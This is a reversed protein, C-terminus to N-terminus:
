YVREPDYSNRMENPRRDYSSIPPPAQPALGGLYKM